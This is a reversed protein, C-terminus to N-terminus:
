VNAKLNNTKGNTAPPTAETTTKPPVPETSQRAKTTSTRPKGGAMQFERSDEGYFAKINLMLRQTMKKLAQESAEVDRMAEDVSTLLKNYTALNTQTEELLTQLAQVSAGNGFDLTESITQLSELFRQSEELISSNRKQRAM